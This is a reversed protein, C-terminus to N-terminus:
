RRQIHWFTVLSVLLLAPLVGVAIAPILGNTPPSTSIALLEVGSEPGAGTEERLGQVSPTVSSKSTIEAAALQATPLPLRVRAPADTQLIAWFIRGLADGSPKSGGHDQWVVHVQNGLAVVAQAHHPEGIDSLLLAPSWAGDKWWAYEMGKLSPWLLHLRNDDDVALGQWNNYGGSPIAVQRQSWTSGGDESWQHYRQMDPRGVWVIHVWDKHDVIINGWEPQLGDVQRDYGQRGDIEDVVMPASWSAGGDFSRAYYVARGSYSLSSQQSYDDLVWVLHLVDQSDIALRPRVEHEDERLPYNRQVCHVEGWTDGYDMSLVHCIGANDLVSAYVLHLHGKSDVQVDAQLTGDALPRPLRWSRHDGATQVPAWSHYLTQFPGEGPPGAWFLHLRGTSDVAARPSSASQNGPSLMIEIPVSWAGDTYRTYTIASADEERERPRSAWFVHVAGSVDAVLIPGSAIEDSSSIVMPESWAGLMQASASPLSALVVGFTGVSLCVLLFRSICYMPHNM